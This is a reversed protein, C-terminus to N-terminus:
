SFTLSAEDEKGPIDSWRLEEEISLVILNPKKFLACSVGLSYDSNIDDIKTSSTLVELETELNNNIHGPKMVAEFDIKNLKILLSIIKKDIKKSEYILNLANSLAKIHPVDDPLESETPSPLMPKPKHKPLKHKNKQVLATISKVQKHLYSVEHENEIRIYHSLRGKKSGTFFLYFRLNKKSRYNRASCCIKLFSDIVIADKNWTDMDKVSKSEKKLNRKAVVFALSRSEKEDDQKNELVHFLDLPFMKLLALQYLTLYASEHLLAFGCQQVVVIEQAIGKLIEQKKKDITKDIIPIQKETIKHITINWLQFFLGNVKTEIGYMKEKIKSKSLFKDIRDFDILAKIKEGIDNIIKRGAIIDPTDIEKFDRPKTILHLLAKSTLIKNKDSKLDLSLPMLVYYSDCGNAYPILIAEQGINQLAQIIRNGTSESMRESTQYFMRTSADIDLINIDKDIDEERMQRFSIIKIDRHIVSNIAKWIQDYQTEFFYEGIGELIIKLVESHGLSIHFNELMELLAEKTLISYNFGNVILYTYIEITFLYSKYLDASTYVTSSLNKKAFEEVVQMLELFAKATMALSTADSKVLDKIVECRKTLIRLAASKKEPLKIELKEKPQIQNAVKIRM